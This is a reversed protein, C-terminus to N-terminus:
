TKAAAVSDCVHTVRLSDALLWIAVAKGKRETGTGLVAGIIKTGANPENIGGLVLGSAGVDAAKKRQSNVMGQESTWGTEGTSNLLAIERYEGPVKDPTTYVIVAEPCTKAYKATPDLIAANTHVCASTAVSAALLLAIRM